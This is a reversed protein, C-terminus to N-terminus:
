SPSRPESLGVEAEGLAMSSSPPPPLTQRPSKFMHWVVKHWAGQQALFICFHFTCLRQESVRWHTLLFLHSVVHYFFNVVTSSILWSLLSQLWQILVQTRIGSQCSVLHNVKLWNNERISLKTIQLFFFHPLAGAVFAFLCLYYLVCPPFLSTLTCLLTHGPCFAPVFHALDRHSWIGIFWGLDASLQPEVNGLRL